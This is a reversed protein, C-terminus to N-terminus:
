NLKPDIPHKLGIDVRNVPILETREEYGYKTPINRTMKLFYLGECTEAVCEGFRIFYGCSKECYPPPLTVDVM